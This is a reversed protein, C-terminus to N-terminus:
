KSTAYNKDPTPHEMTSYGCIGAKFDNYPIVSRSECTHTAAGSLKDPSLAQTRKLMAGYAVNEVFASQIMRGVEGCQEMSFSRLYLSNYLKSCDTEALPEARKEKHSVGKKDLKLMKGDYVAYTRTYREVGLDLVVTEDRQKLDTQVNAPFPMPESVNAEHSQNLSAFALIDEHSNSGQSFRLLVIDKQPFRFTAEQRISLAEVTLLTKGQYIISYQPGKSEKIDLVGFRTAIPNTAAHLLGSLLLGTILLLYKM